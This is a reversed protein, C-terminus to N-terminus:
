GGAETGWLTRLRQDRGCGNRYYRYRLPNKRYYDQHYEEAPYFRGAATVETAIPRDFRGSRALEARSTEAQERQTEDVWFIGSRYQTGVDCFQRNVAVPDVNRWFVRLLEAYSIRTPDYRVEVAETHGTSGSSVAEYTPNIAHGGIYGSTTSLVGPLKDFPPEMCWFCGGAFIARQPEPAAAASEEASVTVPTLLGLATLLLSAALGRLNRQV